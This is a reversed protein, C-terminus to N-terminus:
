NTGCHGMARRTPACRALILKSGNRVNAAQRVIGAVEVADVRDDTISLKHGYEEALARRGSVSKSRELVRAYAECSHALTERKWYDIDLLWEKKRTARLGLAARKCNHFIHAAEHVVFDAFPDDAAFYETSVYCTTEESVGVLQPTDAALLPAGLSALYVNALTWASSDFSTEFFLREIIGSTLFVVSRVLAGLVRDQEARPFLGRVMPEVKSHTLAATDIDPLLEQTRGQALRGVECVLAGRLDEHARKAREMFSGSWASYLSDSEGTLIYRAIEGAIAPRPQDSNRRGFDVFDIPFRGV